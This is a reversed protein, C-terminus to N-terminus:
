MEKKTSLRTSVSHRTSVEIIEQGCPCYVVDGYEFSISDVVWEKKAVEFHDSASLSIIHEMLKLRNKKLGAM